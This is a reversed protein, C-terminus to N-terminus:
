AKASGTRVPATLLQLLSPSQFEERERRRRAIEMRMSASVALLPAPNESGAAETELEEAVELLFDDRGKRSPSKNIEANM